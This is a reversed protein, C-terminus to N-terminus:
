CWGGVQSLESDNVDAIREPHTLVVMRNGRCYAVMTIGLESAIEAALDTVGHRSVVVPIRVKAAKVAMEYSVRGTSILILDDMPLRDLWARGILKDVANHRGIDERISVVAGQAGFGCGHVGATEKREVGEHSLQRVMALLHEPRVVLSSRVPDLGRAHGISSFTVGKGCGSTIYRKRYILEDPPEDAYDLYVLGRQWDAAVGILKDRDEILGEALLFGAAMEELHMPSGQVTAIEVGNMHVTIPRESPLREPSATSGPRIVVPRVTRTDADPGPTHRGYAGQARRRTLELGSAGNGLAELPVGVVDLSSLFSSMRQRGSALSRQVAPLCDARYFAILPEYGRKSVPVVAQADSRADWLRRIYDPRLWAADAGIALVWEDLGSGLATALEGLPGRHEFESELLSLGPVLDVETVDDISQTVVSVRHCAGSAAEAIRQVLGTRRHNFQISSGPSSFGGTLIAATAPILVVEKDASRAESASRVCDVLTSRTAGMETLGRKGPRDPLCARPVVAGVVSIRCNGSTRGELGRTM